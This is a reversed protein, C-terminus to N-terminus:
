HISHALSENSLPTDAARMFDIPTRQNKIDLKRLSLMKKIDPTVYDLKNGSLDISYVNRLAHIGDEIHTIENNALDIRQLSSCRYLAVPISRIQNNELCLGQLLPLQAIEDPIETIGYNDKVILYRMRSLQSIDRPVADYHHREPLKYDNAWELIRKLGRSNDNNDFLSVTKQQRENIQFSIAQLSKGL